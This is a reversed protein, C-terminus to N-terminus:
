ELRWSGTAAAQVPSLRGLHGDAFITNMVRRDSSGHFMGYLDSAVMVEAPGRSQNATPDWASVPATVETAGLRSHYAYSMGYRAFVSPMTGPISAEVPEIVAVSPLNPVGRDHPCRWVTPATVRDALVDKLLPWEERLEAIRHFRSEPDSALPYRSDFDQVYLETALGIQRLNSACVTTQAPGRVSALVPLLMAALTTILVIVVLTEVM